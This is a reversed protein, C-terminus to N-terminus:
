KVWRGEPMKVEKMLKNYEEKTQKRKLKFVTYFFLGWYGIIFGWGASEGWLYSILRDGGIGMASVPIM